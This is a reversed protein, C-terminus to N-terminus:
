TDNVGLITVTGHAGATANAFYLTSIDIQSIAFTGGPQILLYQNSSDGFNQAHTTVKILVDRLKTSTTEFRRAADAGATDQNVYVTGLFPMGYAGMDRGTQVTGGWSYVDVIGQQLRIAYDDGSAVSVAGALAGMTITTATNSVITSYHALGDAATHVELVGGAWINVEWSKGTDICTTNTGGTATGTDMSFEVFRSLADELDSKFGTGMVDCKVLARQADDSLLYEVDGTSKVLYILTAPM